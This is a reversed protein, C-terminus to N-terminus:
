CAIKETEPQNEEASDAQPNVKLAQRHSDHLVNSVFAGYYQNKLELEIKIKEEELLNRTKRETM